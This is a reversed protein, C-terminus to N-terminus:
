GERGVERPDVGERQGRYSPQRLRGDPTWERYRVRVVLEPHVWTVDPVDPPDVFPPEGTALGELLGGLRASERDTFGSGVAGGFRLGGEADYTGVLLSGFTGRRHGTGHRWGGVVVDQERVLRLKRWDASREGVRYRRDRRKSVVGELRRDRATAIAADLDDVVPPTAWASGALDLSELAARRQEWPLDVLWEGSRVLLDFVLLHVPVEDRAAAVRLPDRVHMRRQLLPFSPAGDPDFAVIEGDVVTGAPLVAALGALDPYGATVDNGARSRVQVRHGDSAVLARVGDWKFEHVWEPGRVEGPTGPTALMPLLRTTAPM